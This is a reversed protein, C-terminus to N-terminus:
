EDNEGIVQRLVEGLREIEYPKEIVGRFGYSRFDALVPDHSYGSSVIAKAEPDMELLRAVAERGGMGGPITLDFIVADFPRGAEKAKRYIELAEAGDSAVEGECGIHKLTRKLMNRIVEEDDMVLIRRKETPQWGPKREESAVAQRDSAPLYVYFTTGAGLRSEVRIHGGHKKIISYTVSLGLGRGKEKTSFYPDFIRDLHEGPIGIGRDEVSIEIYEGAPLPLGCGDDLVMNKARVAVTGGQPMAQAANIVLNNFVQSIQGEDAEVPWLDDAIDFDCRVNSGRLAFAATEQIAKSLALSKKVPAGGRSFTLLQGTLDRARLVAKEAEDLLEFAKPELKHRLRALGINGLIGTLLNNFDHAIGGALLGVSELKQAKALEDELQRERTIDSWSGVIEMPSGEPGRLLRMEDRTWRYTGDKHRFRYESKCYGKDIVRSVDELVRPADEPHVNNTWFHPDHLFDEADHGLQTKVNDSIFTSTYDGDAECSYIIAPSSMLIQQLRAKTAILEEQVKKSETVDAFSAMMGVSKGTEDRVMSAAVQADFWSGDKRKARLEGTWNKGNRLSQVVQTAGDETEWFTTAPRGLVEGPADHGWLKLFSNNAYALKGEPDAVAFGIISSELAWDRIRLAREVRKREDIEVRLEENARGLEATRDAVRKELTDYAERLEEELRKRKTVDRAIGLAAVLNGQADFIPAANTLINIYSGDKTRYRYEMNDQRKGQRLGAFRKQTAELDEPHVLEFGSIQKIEDRSYGLINEFAQNAFLFKGELDVTFIIDRSTEVLTRYKEESDALAEAARQRETVDRALHVTGFLNGRRDTVPYVCVELIGDEVGPRAPATTTHHVAARTRHVEAVACKPCVEKLGRLAEFCKRGLVSDKGPLGFLKVLVGNVDTLNFDLDIVCLCDGIADFTARLKRHTLRLAEETQGCKDQSAELESIRRHLELLEDRLQERTKDEDAM